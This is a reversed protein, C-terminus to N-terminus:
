APREDSNSFITKPILFFKEFIRPELYIIQLINKRDSFLIIKPGFEMEKM